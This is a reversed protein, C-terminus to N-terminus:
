PGKFWPWVTRGNLPYGGSLRPIRWIKARERRYLGGDANNM